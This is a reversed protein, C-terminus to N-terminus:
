ASAEVRSAPRPSVDLARRLTRMAKAAQSKVTGRACGLVEAIEAESLGEYYRLVIVARQRPPLLALAGALEDQDDYTALRDGPAAVDFGDPLASERRNRRWWSLQTTVMVRRTYAVPHSHDIHEWRRMTKVLATQVLDDARHRDGTLVVGFRLLAPLSALAFEEFDGQARHVVDGQARHVVDGQARHVVDEV